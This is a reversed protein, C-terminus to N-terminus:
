FSNNSFFIYMNQHMIHTNRNKPVMETVEVIKKMKLASSISIKNKIKDSDNSPTKVFYLHKKTIKATFNSNTQLFIM